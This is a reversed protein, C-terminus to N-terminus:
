SIKLLKKANETTQKAVENLAKGKIEAILEAIEKISTPDNRQGRKSQPALFPCDTELLIKELPLVKAADKLYDNKPYTINGAFSVYFNEWGKELTKKTIEEKGSYCHLIGKYGKIMELCELWCEINEPNSGRDDRCHVILPLDLKKALDIQAQFLLRQLQKIESVTMKTHTNQFTSGSESNTFSEPNKADATPNKLVDEDRFLFDLGCEGVGVVKKPNSQYIQELKDIEQQLLIEYDLLKSQALSALHSAEHPHIGITSYFKVKSNTSQLNAALKSLPVDVGVNIITTVGTKGCNDLVDNYDEKFSDWFLHAHTDVLM